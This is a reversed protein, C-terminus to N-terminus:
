EIQTNYYIYLKRSNGAESGGQQIRDEICGQSLEENLYETVVRDQATASMM